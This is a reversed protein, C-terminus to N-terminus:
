LREWVQMKHHIILDETTPEQNDIRSNRLKSKM